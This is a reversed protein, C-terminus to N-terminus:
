ACLAVLSVAMVRADTATTPGTWWCYPDNAFPARLQIPSGIVSNHVTVTSATDLRGLLSGDDLFLEFAASDPPRTGDPPPTAYSVDFTLTVQASRPGVAPDPRALYTSSSWGEIVQGSPLPVALRTWGDSEQLVLLQCTDPALESLVAFGLGPGARLMLTDPAVIATVCMLSPAPPPAPPESRTPYEEAPDIPEFMLFADSAWGRVITDDVQRDLHRWRNDVITSGEVISLGCEGPQLEAIIPADLSPDARLNLVDPAVIRTVCMTTIPEVIIPEAIPATPTPLAAYPTAAAFPSPPILLEQGVRLMALDELQNAGMIAGVSVGYQEAVLAVVDGPVVTHYRLRGNAAGVPTPVSVPQNAEPATEPAPVQTPTTTTSAPESALETPPPEADPQNDRLAAFSAIGVIALLVAAAPLVAKRWWAQPATTHLADIKPSAGTGGGATDGRKERSDRRAELEAAEAALTQRIRDDTM